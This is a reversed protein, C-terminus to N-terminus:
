LYYNLLKKFYYQSQTTGRLMNPDNELKQLTSASLKAFAANTPAFVTLNNGLFSVLGDYLVLSSIKFSFYEFWDSHSYIIVLDGWGVM